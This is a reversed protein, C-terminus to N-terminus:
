VLEGFECRLHSHYGELGTCGCACGWKEDHAARIARVRDQADAWLLLVALAGVAALTGWFLLQTVVFM